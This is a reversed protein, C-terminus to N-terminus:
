YNLKKLFQEIKINVLDPLDMQPCHSGHKIVELQSGPILQHLLEQQSLPTIKDREGAILLTPVKVEHLWSSADYNDYSSILHLLTAPDLNAMQDVYLQVDEPATLHPNFGGFQIIAHALPNGKQFAWVKRLWDPKRQNILRALGWAPELWNGNFLTELPRKATGNALVMALVREPHKRYVELVTNVGMSHGLFVAEKIGIEDLFLILDRALNEVTLSSMDQPTDSNGHGRYDM